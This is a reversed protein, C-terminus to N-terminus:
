IVSKNIKFEDIDFSINSCISIRQGLANPILNPRHKIDKGFFILDGEEPLISYQQGDIDQFVLKGDEGNLNKPVKLYFCCTWSTEIQKYTKPNTLCIPHDHFIDRTRSGNEPKSRSDSQYIWVQNAWSKLNDLNINSLDAALKITYKKLSQLEKSEILFLSTNNDTLGVISWNQQVKEIIDNQSYEWNYKGKYIKLTKSFIIEEIM